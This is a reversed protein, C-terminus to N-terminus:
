EGVGVAGGGCVSHLWRGLLNRPGLFWGEPGGQEPLTQVGASLSGVGM